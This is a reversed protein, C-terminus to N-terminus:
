GCNSSESCSWGSLSGMDSGSGISCRKYALCPRGQSSCRRGKRGLGGNEKKGFLTASVRGLWSALDLKRSAKRFSPSHRVRSSLVYTYYDLDGTSLKCAINLRIQCRYPNM